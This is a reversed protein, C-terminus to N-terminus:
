EKVSGNDACCGIVAESNYKDNVLWNYLRVVVALCWSEM